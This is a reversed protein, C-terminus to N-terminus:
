IALQRHMTREWAPQSSIWGTCEDGKWQYVYRDTGLYFSYGKSNQGLYSARRQDYERIASAPLFMEGPATKTHDKPDVAKVQYGIEGGVTRAGLIVFVGSVQGCVIQNTRAEM